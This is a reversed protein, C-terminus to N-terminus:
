EVEGGGLNAVAEVMVAFISDVEEEIEDPRIGASVADATVRDALDVMLGPDTSPHEPVHQDMWRHLFDLGRASM